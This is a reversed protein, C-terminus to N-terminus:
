KKIKEVHDSVKPIAEFISAKAKGEFLLPRPRPM